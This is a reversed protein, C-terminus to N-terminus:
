VMTVCIAAGPLVYQLVTGVDTVSESGGGRAPGVVALAPVVALILGRM